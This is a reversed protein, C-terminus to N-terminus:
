KGGTGYGADHSTPLPVQNAVKPQVRNGDHYAPVGSDPSKSNGAGYTTKYAPPIPVQRAIKPNTRNGNNKAPVGGKSAM